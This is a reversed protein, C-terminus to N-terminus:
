EDVRVFDLIEEFQVKLKVIAAEIDEFTKSGSIVCKGSAFILFVVNPDKLHYILGPFQEPEYESHEFPLSIVLRELDLGVGINHTVVINQLIIDVDKLPWLDFDHAMLDDHLIKVAEHVHSIEKAGAAVCRGSRFLLLCVKPTAVRYVMGPFQEQEYEIGLIESVENLDINETLRTSAVMNVVKYTM